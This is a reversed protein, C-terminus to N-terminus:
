GLWGKASLDHVLQNAQGTRAGLGGLPGRSAFGFGITVLILVTITVTVVRFVIVHLLTKM